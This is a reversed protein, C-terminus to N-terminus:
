VCGTNVLTLSSTGGITWGAASATDTDGFILNGIIHSAVDLNVTIDGTPNVSNFDATFGAGDAPTNALWSNNVTDDWSYAGPATQAWTGNGALTTAPGSLISVAALGIFFWATTQIRLNM